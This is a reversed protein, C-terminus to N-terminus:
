EVRLNAKRALRSIVIVAADMTAILFCKLKALERGSEKEAVCDFIQTHFAVQLLRSRDGDANYDQSYDHSAMLEVLVKSTYVDTLSFLGALLVDEVNYHFIPFGIKQSNVYHCCYYLGSINKCDQAATIGLVSQRGLRWDIIIEGNGYRAIGLGIQQTM